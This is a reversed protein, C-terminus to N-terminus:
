GNGYNRRWSCARTWPCTSIRTRSRCRGYWNATSPSSSLSTGGSYKRIEQQLQALKAGEALPTGM